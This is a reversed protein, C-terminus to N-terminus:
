DVLALLTMNGVRLGERVENVLSAVGKSHLLEKFHDLSNQHDQRIGRQLDKTILIVDTNDTM